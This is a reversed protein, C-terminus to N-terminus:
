FRRSVEAYKIKSSGCTEGRIKTKPERLDVHYSQPNRLISGM